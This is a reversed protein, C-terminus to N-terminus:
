GVLIDQWDPRQPEVGFEEILLRVIEALSVPGTPLHMQGLPIPRNQPDTFDVRSSLHLHPSAVRSVGNPHWHYALIESNFQDSIAVNYASTRAEFWRREPDPREAVLAVTVSLSIRSRGPAVTLPVARQQPLFSASLTPSDSIRRFIQFPKTTVCSLHRGLMEVNSAIAESETRGGL